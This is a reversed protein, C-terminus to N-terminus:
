IPLTKLKKITTLATKDLLVDRTFYMKMNSNFNFPKTSIYDGDTILTVSLGKPATKISM